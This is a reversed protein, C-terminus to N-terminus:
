IGWNWRIPCGLPLTGILAVVMASPGQQSLRNATFQKQLREIVSWTRSERCDSEDETGWLPQPMIRLLKLPPIACGLLLITRLLLKWEDPDNRRIYKAHGTYNLHLSRGVGKDGFGMDGKKWFSKIILLM